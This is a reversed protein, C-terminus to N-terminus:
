MAKKKEGWGLCGDHRKYLLVHFKIYKNGGERGEGVVCNYVKKKKKLM